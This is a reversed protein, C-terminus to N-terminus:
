WIPKGILTQLICVKKLLEFHFTLKLAKELPKLTIKQYFSIKDYEDKAGIPLLTLTYVAGKFHIFSPAKVFILFNEIEHSYNKLQISFLLTSSLCIFYFASCLLITKYHKQSM